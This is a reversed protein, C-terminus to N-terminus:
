VAPVHRRVELFAVGLRQGMDQVQQALNAPSGYYAGVQPIPIPTTSPTVYAAAAAAKAVAADAEQKMLRAAEAAAEAAAVKPADKMEQLEQAALKAAAQAQAAKTATDAMSMRLVLKASDVEAVRALVNNYSEDASARSAASEAEARAADAEVAFAQARYGAALTYGADQTGSAAANSNTVGAPPVPASAAATCASGLQGQGSSSLTAAGCGNFCFNAYTDESGSALMCNAACSAPDSPPLPSCMTTLGNVQKAPPRSSVTCCGCNCPSVGVTLACQAVFVMFLLPRRLLPTM